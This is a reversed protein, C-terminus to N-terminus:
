PLLGAKKADAIAEKLPAFGRSHLLVDEGTKALRTALARLDDRAKEADNREREFHTLEIQKNVTAWEAKEARETLKVVQATLDENSATLLSISATLATIEENDEIMWGALLATERNDCFDAILQARRRNTKSDDRVMDVEEFKPIEGLQKALELMEETVIAHPQDTTM